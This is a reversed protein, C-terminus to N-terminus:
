GGCDEMGRLWTEPVKRKPPETDTLSEVADCLRQKLEACGERKECNTPTFSQVFPFRELLMRRDVDYGGQRADQRNLTVLVPAGGAYRKLLGLWYEADQMETNSRPDLVLVYVCGETLFFQHLAHTIEQGAFDWLRVTMEGQACGLRFSDLAIGRTEPEKKEHPEGMFFRRLSTKGAGGRGVLMVKIENVARLKETAARPPQDVHFNLIDPLTTPTNNDLFLTTLNALQIIYPPLTSLQNNDLFLTTLNALQTIEPPLTSL